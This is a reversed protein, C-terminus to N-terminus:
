LFVVSRTFAKEMDTLAPWSCLRGLLCPVDIAAETVMVMHLSSCSM